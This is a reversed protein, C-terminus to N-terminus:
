SALPINKNLDSNKKRKTRKLYKIYLCPKRYLTSKIADKLHLKYVKFALKVKLASHVKTASKIILAFGVPLAKYKKPFNTSKNTLKYKLQLSMLATMRM